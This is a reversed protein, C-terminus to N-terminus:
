GNPNHSMWVKRARRYDFVAQQFNVWKYLVTGHFGRNLKTNWILDCDQKNIRTLGCNASWVLM